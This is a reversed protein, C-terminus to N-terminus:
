YGIFYKSFKPIIKKLFIAFVAIMYVFLLVIFFLNLWTPLNFLNFSDQNIYDSYRESIDILYGHLFFVSFSVAAIYKLFKIQVKEFRHLFVMFFLSLFLKEFLVFDFGSYVFFEKHSNRIDGNWVNFTALFLVFILIIFEKNVFLQYIKEKHISCFIGILYVPFFYIVSHLVHFTEIPRHVISSIVLLIILVAIQTKTKTRAFALHLPSFLFMVIIFPIYWYAPPVGGLYSKM